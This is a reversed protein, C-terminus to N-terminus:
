IAPAQERGRRDEWIKEAWYEPGKFSLFNLNGVALTGLESEEVMAEADAAALGARRALAAAVYRKFM